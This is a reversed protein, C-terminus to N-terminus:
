SETFTSLGPFQPPPIPDHVRHATPTAIGGSVHSQTLVSGKVRTSFLWRCRCEVDVLSTRWKTVEVCVSPLSTCNNHEVPSFPLPPTLWPPGPSYSFFKDTDLLYASLVRLLLFKLIMPQAEFIRRMIGTFVRCM